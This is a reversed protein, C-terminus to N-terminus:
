VSLVQCFWKELADVSIATDYLVDHSKLIRLRLANLDDERNLLSVATNIYAGENHTITEEVGIRRLLGSTMRNLLRPGELTVIPTGASLGDLTTNGGNFQPIDLMLDAAALIRIFEARSCQPLFVIRETVDPMVNQWRAMLQEDWAKHDGKFLVLRSRPAQRLIEALLHDFAPHFKYLSQPCIVVSCDADFGLVTKDPRTQPVTPRTFGMPIEDLLVLRESYCAQAAGFDQEFWYASLYYDIQPMGTTVPHGWTVCQVPALRHLAMYYTMPEMGIDTYLILDPADALVTKCAGWYDRVSLPTMPVDLDLSEPSAGCHRVVPYFHLEFAERSIGQLLRRFVRSITHKQTLYRSVVAVKPRSRQPRDGVALVQPLSRLLCGAIDEMLMRDNEGQYVLYFPTKGIDAIPDAISLTSEKLTNLNNQFTERWRSVADQDPYVVPLTFLRNFLLGDNRTHNYLELLQKRAQTAEGLQAQISALYLGAQPYAPDLALVQKFMLQSEELRNVEFLLRAVEFQRSADEPTLSVADIRHLLANNRDGTSEFLVALEDHWRPNQPELAILRKYGERADDMRNLSAAVQVLQECADLYTPELGVAKQFMLLALEMEGTERYLLGLNCYFTPNDPELRVSELFRTKASEPDGTQLDIMGLLHLAMPHTKDSALVQEYLNRAQELRGAQHHRMAEELLANASPLLAEQGDLGTM